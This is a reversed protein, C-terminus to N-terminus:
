VLFVTPNVSNNSADQRLDSKSTHGLGDHVRFFHPPEGLFQRAEVAFDFIAHHQEVRPEGRKAVGPLVLLVFFKGVFELLRHLGQLFESFHRLFVRREQQALRLPDLLIQVLSSSNFVM